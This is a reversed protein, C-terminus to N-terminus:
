TPLPAPEGRRWKTIKPSACPMEGPAANRTNRLWSLIENEYRTVPALILYEAFVRSTQHLAPGLWTASCVSFVRRVKARGFEYPIWKSRESNWTITAICHTSNLFGMEIIAAILMEKVPSEISVNPANVYNLVPDDIDLWYGYDCRTAALYAIRDAFDSDTQRHSVFIRCERHGPPVTRLEAAAEDLFKDLAQQCQAAAVPAPRRVQFTDTLDRWAKIGIANDPFRDQLGTGPPNQWHFDPM